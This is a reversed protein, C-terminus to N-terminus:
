DYQAEWTISGPLSGQIRQTHPRGWRKQPRRTSTPRAPIMRDLLSPPDFLIMPGSKSKPSSLGIPGSPSLLAPLENSWFPRSSRFHKDSVAPHNFGYPQNSGVPDNFGVLNNSSVSENSGVPEISGVFGNYRSFNNSNVPENSGEPM